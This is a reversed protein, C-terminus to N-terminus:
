GCLKNENLFVAPMKTSVAFFVQFFFALCSNQFILKSLAVKLNTLPEGGSLCHSRYFKELDRM